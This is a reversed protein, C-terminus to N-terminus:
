LTITGRAAVQGYRRDNGKGFSPYVFWQYSGPDLEDEPVRVSTAKPWLDLARKGNRWLIVNYYTAGRVPRWSLRIQEGAPRQPSGAAGPAAKPPTDTGPRAVVLAVAGTASVVLIAAALRAARSRRRRAGPRPAAAHEIATLCDPADPLTQRALSDLRDDVLALEPSIRDM